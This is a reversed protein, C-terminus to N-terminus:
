SLSDIFPIDERTFAIDGGKLSVVSFNYKDVEKVVRVWEKSPIALKVIEELTEERSIM